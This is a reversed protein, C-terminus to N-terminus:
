IQYKTHINYYFYKHNWGKKLSEQLMKNYEWQLKLVQFLIHKNQIRKFMTVFTEGQEKDARLQVRGEQQQHVWQHRLQEAGDGAVEEGPQDAARIDWQWESNETFM